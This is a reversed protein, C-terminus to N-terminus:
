AESTLNRTQLELYRLCSLLGKLFGGYFFDCSRYLESAPGHAPAARYHRLGMTINIAQEFDIMKLPGLGQDHYAALVGQYRGRYTQYFASDASLLDVNIGHRQRLVEVAPEFYRQEEDGILGGDSLHPNLGCLALALEQTPDEGKLLLAMKRLDQLAQHFLCVKRIILEQSIHSSVEGLPLHHTLLGVRLHDGALVMIGPAQWISEFFESQGAYEFGASMLCAKNVPATFAALPPPTDTPWTSLCESLQRIAYLPEASILGRVANSMFRPDRQSLADASVAGDVWVWEARSSACPAPLPTTLLSHWFSPGDEAQAPFHKLPINQLAEYFAASCWQQKQAEKLEALFLERKGLLIIKAAPCESSLLIRQLCRMLAAANISLPDGLTIALIGSSQPTSPETM